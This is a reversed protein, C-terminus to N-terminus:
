HVFLATEPVVSITTSINVLPLTMSVLTGQSLVSEIFIDGGSQKIFGFVMSLGLGSGEGSKRTTFFPEFARELVEKSMGSGNDLVSIECKSDAIIRTRITVTGQGPIALSGNICLNLIANEIQGPDIKVLLKTTTLDLVISVTEGISCDILDSMGTILANLEVVEPQLKQKRAFALLRQTLSVGRESAVLARELYVQQSKFSVTTQSIKDHLLQLNGLIIALLNNFDHAVEGAIKGLSELHRFRQFTEEVKKQKTIDSIISVTEGNPLRSSRITIIKGSNSRIEQNALSTKCFLTDDNHHGSSELIPVHDFSHLASADLLDSITDGKHISHAPIEFIKLFQPNWTILRNKDDFVTCGSSMNDFTSQLLASKEIYDKNLRKFRFANNRFIHFARILKGIEDYRHKIDPMQVNHEGNALKTMVDTVSQLSKTIYHVIYRRVFFTITLGCLITLIIAVQGSFISMATRDQHRILTTKKNEIFTSVAKNLRRVEYKLMFLHRSVALSLTLFHYCSSFIPSNEQILDHPQTFKLLESTFHITKHPVIESFASLYQRRYEGLTMFNEATAASILFNILYRTQEISSSRTESLRALKNEQDLLQRVLTQIHAKVEIKSQLIKALEKLLLRMRKLMSAVNNHFARIEKETDLGNQTELSFYSIKDLQDLLAKSESIVLYPSKVNILYPVSSVLNTAKQSIDLVQMIGILTHRHLTELDEEAKHLGYMAIVGAFLIAITLVLLALLLRAKISIVTRGINRKLRKQFRAM